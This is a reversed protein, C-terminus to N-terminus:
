KNDEREADKSRAKKPISQEFDLLEVEYRLVSNKPIRGRQRNQYALPSPVIAQAKGGKGLMTIVERMGKPLRNLGIQKGGEESYEVALDDSLLKIKYDILVKDKPKPRSEGGQNDVLYYLGSNTKEMELNHQKLHFVILSDDIVMQQNRQTIREAKYDSDSQVSHLKLILNIESARKTIPNKEGLLTKSDVLFASSDGACMEQLGENLLGKFFSEQFKIELPSKGFTSFLVSDDPSRYELDMKIYDGIVPKVCPGTIPSNGDPQCGFFVMAGLAIIFFLMQSKM